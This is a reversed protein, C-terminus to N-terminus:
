RCTGATWARAVRADVEAQGAFGAAAAVTEDVPSIVEFATATM